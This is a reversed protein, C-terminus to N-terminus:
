AGCKAVCCIEFGGVCMECRRACRRLAVVSESVTTPQLSASGAICRETNTSVPAKAAVPQNLQAAQQQLQQLQELCKQLEADVKQKKELRQFEKKQEALALEQQAIDAKMQELESLKRKDSKSQM